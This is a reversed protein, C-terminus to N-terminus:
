TGGGTALGPLISLPDLCDARTVADGGDPKFVGFHLHSGTSRGTNGLTGIADGARVRQGEAVLVGELHAYFSVYPGHDVFVVTGSGERDFDVKSVRGDATALVREGSGPPICVLDIGNHFSRAGSFPDPGDGFGMSVRHPTEGLPDRFAMGPMASRRGTGAEWSVALYGTGLLAVLTLSVVAATRFFRATRTEHAPALVDHVRSGLRSGQAMSMTAASFSAGRPGSAMELLVKAYDSPRVGCGVAGRDCASERAKKMGRLALLTVPSFWSPLAVIRALAFLSVDRRRVHMLEHSLVSRVQVEPWSAAELPLIVCPCVVGTTFPMPNGGSLWVRVERAIGLRARLADAAASISATATRKTGGFARALAIRGAVRSLAVVGMGSLWLAALVHRTMRATPSRELLGADPRDPVLRLIEAGLVQGAADKSLANDPPLAALVAFLLPIGLAAYYLWYRVASSRPGLCHTLILLLLSVASGWAGISFLIRVMVEALAAGAEM